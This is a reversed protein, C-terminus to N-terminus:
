VVSTAIFGHMPEGPKEQQLYDPLNQLVDAVVYKVWRLLMLHGQPM